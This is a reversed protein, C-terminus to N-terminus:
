QHIRTHRALYSTYDPVGLPIKGLLMGFHTTSYGSIGTCEGPKCISLDQETPRSNHALIEAEYRWDM